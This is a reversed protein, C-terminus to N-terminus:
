KLPEIKFSAEGNQILQWNALLEDHHIVLWARILRMKNAPMSGALITGDFSVVVKHEAYSAHFHPINHQGGELFMRIIIGYFTSILPM